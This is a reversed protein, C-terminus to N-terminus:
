VINLVGGNNWIDGSSLGASSTPLNSANINGTTKLDTLINLGTAPMLKVKDVGSLRFNLGLSSHANLYTDGGSGGAIIYQTDLNNDSHAINFYGNASTNKGIKVIEDVKLTGTIRADSSVTLGTNERLTMKDVNSLRFAIGNVVSHANIYTAGNEGGAFAFQTNLDNNVHAINYYGSASTNEGIKVVDNIELLGNNKVELLSDDNVDTVKFGSTVVSTDSGKVLTDDQLSISESGIKTSGQIAVYDKRVLVNSGQQNNLEVGSDGFGFKTAKIQAWATTATAGVKFDITANTGDGTEENRLEIAKHNIGTGTRYAKLSPLTSFANTITAQGANTVEFRSDSSSNVVKIGTTTHSTSSGKVLTDKQLSIKETGIPTTGGLTWSNGDLDAYHNADFTLDANSINDGGGGASPLNTLGSGDGVFSTANVTGTVDLGDFNDILTNIVTGDNLTSVLTNDNNDNFDTTSLHTNTDDKLASLDVDIVTGDNMTLELENTSNDFVGSVLFTNTDVGGGGISSLDTLVTVGDNRLLELNETTGNYNGSIVFTDSLGSGVISVEKTTGTTTVVIPYVGTVDEVFVPCLVNVEPCDVGPFEFGTIDTAPIGCFTTLVPTMLSIDCSWGSVEEDFEETFAEFDIDGIINLQSNIYYPHGKFEAVIDKLIDITDSLVDNENSEDKNVLDFLRVEFDIEFTKYGNDSSPMSATVPNIWLVPHMYAESVGVEWNDGVGFGNIQYHRTAIDKWVSVLQNITQIKM